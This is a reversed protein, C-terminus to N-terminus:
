FMIFMRYISLGLLGVGIIGFGLTGYPPMSSIVGLFLYLLATFSTGLALLFSPKTLSSAGEKFYFRLAFLLFAIMFPLLLFKNAM